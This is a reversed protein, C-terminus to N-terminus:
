YENDFTINLKGDFMENARMSMKELEPQSFYHNDQLFVTIQREIHIVYYEECNYSSVIGRVRNYVVCELLVDYIYDSPLEDWDMIFNNLKDLDKMSIEVPFQQMLSKTYWIESPRLNLDIRIKEWDLNDINM